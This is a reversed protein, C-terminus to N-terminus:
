GRVQPANIEVMLVAALAQRVLEPVPLDLERSAQQLRQFSAGDVAAGIARPEAMAAAQEAERQLTLEAKETM